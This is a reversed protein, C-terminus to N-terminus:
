NDHAKNSLVIINCIKMESAVNLVSTTLQIVFLNPYQAKVSWVWKSPYRGKLKLEHKRNNYNKSSCILKLPVVHIYKSSFSSEGSSSPIAPDTFFYLKILYVIAWRNNSSM